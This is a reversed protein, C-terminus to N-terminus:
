IGGGKRLLMVILENFKREWNSMHLLRGDNSYPPFPRVVNLDRWNKTSRIETDFTSREYLLASTGVPAFEVIVFTPFAFATAVLGKDIRKPEVYHCLPLYKRWFNGRDPEVDNLMKLVNNIEDVKKRLLEINKYQNIRTKDRSLTSIRSLLIGLFFKEELVKTAWSSDAVFYHGLMEDVLALCDTGDANLGSLLTWIVEFQQNLVVHLRPATVIARLLRKQGTSFAKGLIPVSFSHILDSISTGNAVELDLWQKEAQERGLIGSAKFTGPPLHKQGYADIIEKHTLLTIAEAPALLTSIAQSASLLVEETLQDRFVNGFADQLEIPISGCNCAMQVKEFASLREGNRIKELLREWRHSNNSGSGAYIQALSELADSLSVPQVQVYAPFLKPASM